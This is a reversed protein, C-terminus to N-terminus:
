SLCLYFYSFLIFALFRMVNNFLKDKLCLNNIAEMYFMKMNIASSDKKDFIREKVYSFILRLNKGLNEYWQSM